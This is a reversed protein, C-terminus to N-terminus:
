DNKRVTLVEHFTDLYPTKGPGYYCPCTSENLRM